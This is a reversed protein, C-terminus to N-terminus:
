LVSIVLLKPIFHANKVVITVNKVFKNVLIRSTIIMVLAVIQFHYKISDIGCLTAVLVISNLLVVKVLKVVSIVNKVFKM